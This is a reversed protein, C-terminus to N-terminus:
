KMQKDLKLKDIIREALIAKYHNPYYSLGLKDAKETWELAIDFQDMMESALAMNFCARAALQKSTSESLKKWIEAAREWDGEEALVGAKRLLPDGNIFWARNETTWYPALARSYEYAQDGVVDHFLKLMETSYPYGREPGPEYVLTDIQVHSSIEMTTLDYLRWYLHPFLIYSRYRLTREDINRDDTERSEKEGQKPFLDVPRMVTDNYNVAVLSILFDLTDKRALSNVKSWSLPKNLASEEPSLRIAPKIYFAEFRPSEALGDLLGTVGNDLINRQRSIEIRQSSSLNPDIIVPDMEMRSFVGVRYINQSFSYGAPNLVDTQMTSVTYCSTLM